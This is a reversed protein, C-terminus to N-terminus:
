IYEVYKREEISDTFYSTITIIVTTSLTDIFLAIRAFLPVFVQFLIYSHEELHLMKFNLIMAILVLFSKDHSGDLFFSYTFLLCFFILQLDLRLVDDTYLLLLYILVVTSVIITGSKNIIMGLPGLTDAVDNKIGINKKLHECTPIITASTVGTALATLGAGLFGLYIKFVKKKLFLYLCLSYLLIFFISIIIVALLPRFASISTNGNFTSDKALLAFIFIAGIPFFELIQRIIKDLIADFSEISEVFYLGKKDSFYTAYAFILAIFIIPIMFIYPNNNNVMFVNFINNSIIKLIIDKISTYKIAEGSQQSFDKDHPQFFTLNMFGLSVIISLFVSITVCLLFVRLIKGTIKNKKLNLFGLFSKTLVYLISLYLLSNLALDGIFIFANKYSFSKFEPLFIGLLLGLILAILMKLWIKL